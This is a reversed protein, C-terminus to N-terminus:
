VQLISIKKKLLQYFSLLVCFYRSFKLLRSSFPVGVWVFNKSKAFQNVLAYFSRELKKDNNDILLRVYVHVVVDYSAYFNRFNLSFQLQIIKQLLIGYILLMRWIITYININHHHKLINLYFFWNDLNFVKKKKWWVIEKTPKNRPLSILDIIRRYEEWKKCAM